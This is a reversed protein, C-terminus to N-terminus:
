EPFDELSLGEEMGFSSEDLNIKEGSEADLVTFQSIDVISMYLTVQEIGETEEITISIKDFNSQADAIPIKMSSAIINRDRRRASYCKMRFSFAAKKNPFIIKVSKGHDLVRQMLATVDAQGATTRQHGM